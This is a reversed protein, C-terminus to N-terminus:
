LAADAEVIARWLAVLAEDSAHDIRVSASPCHYRVLAKFKGPIRSDQQARRERALAKRREREEAAAAFEEDLEKRRKAIAARIDDLSVGLTPDIDPLKDFNAELADLGALTLKLAGRYGRPNVLDLNELRGLLGSYSAGNRNRTKGDFRRDIMGRGLVLSALEEAQRTTLTHTM